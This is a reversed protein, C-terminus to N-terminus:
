IFLPVIIIVSFIELLANLLILLQLKKIKSPDVKNIIRKLLNVLKAM